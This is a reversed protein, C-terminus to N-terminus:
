KWEGIVKFETRRNLQHEAETCPVNDACKNVLNNEGYFNALLRSASIGHSVLYDVAAESRRQSLLMNYHESARSDTYSSLAIRLLPRQKMLTVLRDMEVVADTRIFSKDLDYYIVTLVLDRTLKVSDIPSRVSATTNTSNNTNTNATDTRAITKQPVVVPKFNFSYIDDSGKGDERNSSLYGNVGDKTVLYFDDSTTNVPYKLNKPASWQSKEGKAEYIDYGGMGPLGNSSYYLAGDGGIVPFAEDEKTNITPGCNIPKGWTGNAGKECYWIDTKGIGGPMDSIFYIVRGNNSLTADGISYNKVDNYPFSGFVRWQGGQKSAMVLQLRRTYLNQRTNVDRTDKPILKKSIETTITIYATDATKNLAMPGVHYQDKFINGSGPNIVLENVQNNKNDLEYLKYWSNGTREDTPINGAKRDSTFILGADGDYSLGWDSYESNLNPANGVAYGSPLTMWLAASDCVAVKYALDASDNGYFLKYQEKAQEFKKNRLLVEAYYLHCFHGADPASTSQAYWKEANDYDHISLYCDAIRELLWEDPKTKALKLYLDLCKYYEYRDYLNDAQQRLSLQEQAGAYKVLLMTLLCLLTFRRM